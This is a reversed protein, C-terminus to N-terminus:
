PYGYDAVGMDVVIVEVFKFQTKVPQKEVRTSVFEEYM